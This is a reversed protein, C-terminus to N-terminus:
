AHGDGILPQLTQPDLGLSQFFKDANEAARAVEEAAWARRAKAGGRGVEAPMRHLRVIGDQVATALDEDGDVVKLAEERCVHYTPSGDSSWEEFKAAIEEARAMLFRPLPGELGEMFDLSSIRDDTENFLQAAFLDREEISRREAELVDESMPFYGLFDSLHPFQPRLERLEELKQEYRELRDRREALSREAAWAILFPALEVIQSLSLGYRHAVLSMSNRAGDDIRVTIQSRRDFSMEETLAAQGSLVEVSVGLGRALQEVTRVRVSRRPGRELNSITQKNIQSKAQLEEQSLGKLERLSKLVKPDLEPM